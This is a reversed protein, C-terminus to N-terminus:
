EGQAPVLTISGAEVNMRWGGTVWGAYQSAAVAADKIADKEESAARAAAEHQARGAGAAARQELESQSMDERYPIADLKRQSNRTLMTETMEAAYALAMAEAQEESLKIEVEETLRPM